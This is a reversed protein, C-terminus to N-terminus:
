RKKKASVKEFESMKINLWSNKNFNEKDTEKRLKEYDYLNFKEKLRFMKKIKDFLYETDNKVKLSLSKNNKLFHYTSKYESEFTIQDNLEYLCKAKLHKMRVKHIFNPHQLYSIIALVREFEEKGFLLFAEAIKGSYEVNDNPIKNLNKDRFIRIAQYEGANFARWLYLNFDAATMSGDRMFFINNGLMSDTLEFLEKEINIKSPDASSLTNGMLSFLDKADWRSLININEHLAKKFDLLYEIRNSYIQSKSMKWFVDLIKYDRLSHDKVVGLLKEIIGPSIEKLFVPLINKEMSFNQNLSDTLVNNYYKFLYILFSYIFTASSDILDKKTVANLNNARNHYIKIWSIKSFASYFDNVFFYDKSFSDKSYQKDFENIKINFLKTINRENLCNMLIVDRELVNEEFEELVIFKMALKSLEHILNKMTGYNYTKEPFLKKWIVEKALDENNFDGSFKKIESFLKVANSNKNHYPSRIFDEFKLFDEKSFTRFIELLSSKIM